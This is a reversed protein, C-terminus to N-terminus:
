THGPFAKSPFGELPPSQPTEASASVTFMNPGQPADQEKALPASARVCARQPSASLFSAFRLVAEGGRFVEPTVAWRIIGLCPGMSLIMPYPNVGLQPM